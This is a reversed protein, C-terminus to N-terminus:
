YRSTHFRGTRRRNADALTTRYPMTFIGLHHLKHAEALMAASIERLSDFRM